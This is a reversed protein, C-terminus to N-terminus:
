FTINKLHYPLHWAQFFIADIRLDCCVYQPNHTLYCLLAKEYRRKSFKAVSDFAQAKNRYAKVEVAVLCRGKFALVDIEGVPTKFRSALIRYGKLRLLWVAFREALLGKQYAQYGRRSRLM